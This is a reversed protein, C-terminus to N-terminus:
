MTLLLSLLRCPPLFFAWIVFTVLCQSTMVPGRGVDHGVDVAVTIYSHAIRRLKTSNSSRTPIPTPTHANVSYAQCQDNLVPPFSAQVM